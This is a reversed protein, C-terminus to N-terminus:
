DELYMVRKVLNSYNSLIEKVDEKLINLDAHLKIHESKMKEFNKKENEMICNEEQTKKLEKCFNKIHQIEETL